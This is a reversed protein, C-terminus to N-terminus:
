KDRTYTKQTYFSPHFCHFIGFGMECAAPERNYTYIYEYMYTHMYAYIHIDSVNVYVIYIHIHCTNFLMDYRIGSSVSAAFYNKLRPQLHMYFSRFNRSLVMATPCTRPRPANPHSPPNHPYLRSACVPVCTPTSSVCMCACLNTNVCTAAYHKSAVCLNDQHPQHLAYGHRLLPIIVRPFCLRETLDVEIVDVIPHRHPQVRFTSYM